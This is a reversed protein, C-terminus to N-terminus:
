DRRSHALWPSPGHIFYVRNPKTSFYPRKYASRMFFVKRVTTPIVVCSESFTQEMNSVLDTYGETREFKTIWWIACWAHLGTHPPSSWSDPVGDNDVTYEVTADGFPQDTSSVFDAYGETREFVTVQWIM